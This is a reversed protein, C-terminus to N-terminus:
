AARDHSAGGKFHFSQLSFLATSTLWLVLFFFSGFSFLSFGVLFWLSVLFSIQVRVLM